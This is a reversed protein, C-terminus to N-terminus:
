NNLLKYIRTFEWCSGKGYIYNVTGNQLLSSLLQKRLAIAAGNSAIFLCWISGLSIDSIVLRHEGTENNLCITRGILNNLEM